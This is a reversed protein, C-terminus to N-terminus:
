EVYLSYYRTKSLDESVVKIWLFKSTKVNFTNTDVDLYNGSMIGGSGADNSAVAAYVKAHDTVPSLVGNSKNAANISVILLTQLTETTGSQHSINTDEKILVGAFTSGAASTIDMDASESLKRPLVVDISASDATTSDDLKTITLIVAVTQPTSTLTIKGDLAIAVLDETSKIAISYGEPVLPLSLYSDSPLPSGISTIQAAVETATGTPTPTATVTPTPTATGTPTPTATVTPTPTATGTPTPTATVTPTPTATGTPTPTATPVPTPVATPAATPAATPVPMPTVTPATADSGQTQGSTSSAGGQNGSGSSKDHEPAVTASLVGTTTEAPQNLPEASTAETRPNSGASQNGSTQAGQSSSNGSSSSDAAPTQTTLAKPIDTSVSSAASSQSDSGGNKGTFDLAGYHNLVAVTGSAFLLLLLAALIAAGATKKFTKKLYNRIRWLISVPSAIIGAQQSLSLFIAKAAHSSISYHLANQGLVHSLPIMTFALKTGLQKQFVEISKKLMGRGSFLRSKSTNENCSLIESIEKVSMNLYYFYVIVTRQNIPLKEIESRIFLRDENLELSNVPIVPEADAIQIYETDQTDYYLTKEDRKRMLMRCENQTIIYLWSSFAEPSKLEPLKHFVKLFTEQLVDEAKSDSKLIYRALSFVERYFLNYLKEFADRDGSQADLIIQRTLADIIM